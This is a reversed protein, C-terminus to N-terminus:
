SRLSMERDLVEYYLDELRDVHDSLLYHEQQRKRLAGGMQRRSSLDTLEGLAVAAAQSDGPPFLAGVDGLTERHAGGGAGVVPVGHAMAEVVSLGFPEGPAPALFISAGTLLDDTDSVLGLFEVSREIDLRRVLETLSARLSGEGAVSLKWGREGLGSQQWARIGVEPAKESELRQLMVVTPSELPAQPREEVGNPLLFSPGSISDAVFQSIAIDCALGHSSLRSLARTVSHSGRDQAFHRTAVRPARQFPRALWAAGEAATMHLHLIDTARCRAVAIAASALSTAPIRVVSPDLETEMRDAEGGVATVRHGRACLASAVQCVYREVGAFSGTVVVHTVSLPRRASTV